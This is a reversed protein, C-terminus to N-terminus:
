GLHQKIPTIGLNFGYPFELENITEFIENLSDQSLNYGLHITDIKLFPISNDELKDIALEIYYVKKNEKNLECKVESSDHKYHLQRKSFHFLRVEKEIKFLDSKYFCCLPAIVDSLNSCKFNFEEHFKKDRNIIEDLENINQSNSKYDIKGFSFKYLNDINEKDIKFTICAGRGNDAYLRWLDINNNITDESFECLSLAFLQRKYEKLYTKDDINRFYKNAYTFETPDNFNNFDYLRIKQSKLIAILSQLSTYHLFKNNGNYELPTGNLFNSSISTEAEFYDCRINPTYMGGAHSFSNNTWFPKLVVDNYRSINEHLEKTFEDAAM